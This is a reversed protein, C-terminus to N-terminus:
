QIKAKNTHWKQIYIITSKAAKLKQQIKTILFKEWMQKSNHSKWHLWEAASMASLRSTNNEYPEPRADEINM